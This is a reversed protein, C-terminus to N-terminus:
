QAIERLGTEMDYTYRCGQCARQSQFAGGGGTLDGNLYGAFAGFSALDQCGSLCGALTLLGAFALRHM